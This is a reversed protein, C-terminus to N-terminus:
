AAGKSKVGARPERFAVGFDHYGRWAVGLVNGAPEVPEITPTQQGRLYGIEMVAESSPDALLYWATASYGTYLANNLYPAAVPKFKGAHPNTALTKSTAGTVISTASYLQEALVKLSTPVLLVGPTLAIPHGAADTQDLFMQEAQSLSDIGLPTSAGEFYNRNNAHFFNGTNALLLSFAAHEIALAAGRGMQQPVSLFAGLDDNVVDQRTLSLIRGYTELQNVYADEHVTGDKIEGSKGVKEFKLDGTMRYRHHPKFDVLNGVACWLPTTRPVALFSELLLKHAADSLIGSLSVTSPTVSAAFGAQQQAQIECQTAARLDAETLRGGRLPRGQAECVAHVITSLGAHRFRPSAAAELTREDYHRALFSEAAGMQLALSAAYVQAAPPAERGSGEVGPLRTPASARFVELEAREASWGEEIARARIEPHQRAVSAVAAIRKEEDAEAKRRKAIAAVIAEDVRDGLLGSEETPPAAGAEEDEAASMAEFRERLGAAQSESLDAAVLGLSAVWAEFNMTPEKSRAAINVETEGDAGLALFSIERLASERVIYIPGRFARGNAKATKGAKVEVVRKAAGGISAQWPFEAAASAVIEQAAPGSGSIVGRARLEGRGRDIETTHGVIQKPDHDRLIPCRGKVRMGELDIVVPQDWGDIDMAGGSYAVMEFRPRGTPAGEGESAEARIAVPASFRFEGGEPRM